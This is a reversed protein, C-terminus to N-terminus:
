KAPASFRGAMVQLRRAPKWGVLRRALHFFRGGLPAFSSTGLTLARREADTVLDPATPFYDYAFRQLLDAAATRMAPSEEIRLLQKATLIAALHASELHARSRQGSLSSPLGSRYYSIAEACYVVQSSAAVVRAFYEGDDNLSLREDWHGAATAVVRPLLWAAPHMMCDHTAYLRLYDRPSLDSFLPNGTPRQGASPVGHFRIWSGTFVSRNQTDNARALQRSIKEPHLLDDADLFQLYDGQSAALATNRAAPAGRNPQAILRVGRSVYRAAIERSHDRSGDDVVIIETARHTQALVSDLTAGLYPAANYCPILISVLPAPLLHHLFILRDCPAL